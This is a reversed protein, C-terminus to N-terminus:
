IYKNVNLKDTNYSSILSKLPFGSCDASVGRDSIRLTKFFSLVFEEDVLWPTSVAIERLQKAEDSWSYDLKWLSRKDNMLDTLRETKM